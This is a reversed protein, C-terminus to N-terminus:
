NRNENPLRMGRCVFVSIFALSQITIEFEFYKNQKSLNQTAGVTLRYMNEVSESAHSIGRKTHFDTDACSETISDIPVGHHSCRIPQDFIPNGFSRYKHGLLYLLATAVLLM